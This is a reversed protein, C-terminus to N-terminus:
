LVVFFLSHLMVIFTNELHQLGIYTLLPNDCIPLKYLTYNNRNIIINWPQEDSKGTNKNIKIHRAFLVDNIIRSKECYRRLTLTGHKKTVGALFHM